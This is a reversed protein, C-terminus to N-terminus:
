ILIVVIKDSLETITVTKKLVNHMTCTVFSMPM